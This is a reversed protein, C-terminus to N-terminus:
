ILCAERLSFLRSDGAIMHDFVQLQLITGIDVLRKTRRLDAESPSPAGSPHNHMLVVGYAAAIIAACSLERPHALTENLAGIGVVHHVRIRGRSRVIENPILVCFVGSQRPTM